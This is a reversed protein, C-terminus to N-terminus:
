VSDGEDSQPADAARALTAEHAAVAAQQLAVENAEAQAQLDAEVQDPDLGARVLMARTTADLEPAEMIRAPATTFFVVLDRYPAAPGTAPLPVAVQRLAAMALIAAAGTDLWRQPQTPATYAAGLKARQDEDWAAILEGMVEGLVEYQGSLLATLAGCLMDYRRLTPAVPGAPLKEFPKSAERFTALALVAEDDFGRGIAALAGAYCLGALGALDKHSTCSGRRFWTTLLCAERFVEDPAEEALLLTFPLGYHIAMEQTVLPQGSMLGLEVPLVRRTLFKQPTHRSLHLDQRNHLTRAALYLDDAVGRVPGGMAFGLHARNLYADLNRYDIEDVHRTLYDCVDEFCTIFAARDIGDVRPTWAEFDPGSRQKQQEEPAVLPEDVSDSM